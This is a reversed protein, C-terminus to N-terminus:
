ATFINSDYLHEALKIELPASVGYYVRSFIESAIETEGAVETEYNLDQVLIELDALLKSVEDVTTIIDLGTQLFSTDMNKEEINM